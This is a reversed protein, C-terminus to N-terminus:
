SRVEVVVLCALFIVFFGFALWSSLGLLLAVIVGYLYAVFLWEQWVPGTACIV